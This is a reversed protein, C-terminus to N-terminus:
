IFLSKVYIYIIFKMYNKKQTTHSMLNLPAYVLLLLYEM